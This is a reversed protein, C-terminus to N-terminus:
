SNHAYANTFELLLRKQGSIGIHISFNVGITWKSPNGKSCDEVVMVFVFKVLLIERETFM